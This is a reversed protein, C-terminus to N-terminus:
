TDIAPNYRLGSGRAVAGAEAARLRRLAMPCIMLSCNM